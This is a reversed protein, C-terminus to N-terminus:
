VAPSDEANNDTSLQINQATSYAHTGKTITGNGADPRPLYQLQDIQTMVHLDIIIDFPTSQPKDWVTHWTTGEDFDFLHKIGQGPQNPITAEATIGHIAFRLPDPSTRLKERTWDSKGDRNVARVRVEYNTEPQLGEITFAESTITSYLQGAHEIEYYDVNQVKNWKLPLEYASPSICGDEFDDTLLEPATLAGTKQLQQDTTNFTYGELTLQLQTSTIDIDAACVYLRPSHLIQLNEM